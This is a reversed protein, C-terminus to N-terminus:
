SSILDVQGSLHREVLWEDQVLVKDGVASQFFCYGYIDSCDALCVRFIFLGTDVRNEFRAGHM